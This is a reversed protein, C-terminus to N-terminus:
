YEIESGFQAALAELAANYEDLFAVAEGLKETGETVKAEDGAVVADSMMKFGEKYTEMVKVYKAQVDKVEETELVIANVKALSDDCLPILVEDLSKGFDADSAMSEWKGVEEKIKEYNANVDVMEVNLFNTLETEVPDACATFLALVMVLALALTIIKKM